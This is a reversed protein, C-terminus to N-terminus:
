FNFKVGASYSRPTAVSGFDIGAGGFGRSNSANLGNVNPDIGSYNTILFLDTVTVYISVSKFVKQRKIFSAPFQYGLTADRMRVWNVNEVYDADSISTTTSYYNSRFYPTIAITNVTPHPSNELGDQLVGKIVRPQERDLTRASVGLIRMMMENANYVDGGKRVDLNFSLFWDKFTISNIVGFKYDPTRDGIPVFNQSLTPLGTTPSILLDGKNNFQYTYGSLNGLSNGVGVQSRVNGYLWTDSDYYFPLDAPMKEIITRAKDFNVTINWNFNKTQIPTGTIQIEWGKAALQGGNIYKLIGGTAYSLRNSIIQNKVKNNFYAVDVGLRNNFFKFEGGAEFNNSFEPTLDFNNLTVGLGFGGGTTTQSQFAYDIIYPRNPGRGTSAYSTRLKAYSLWKLKNIFDIESLIFSGSISGYQFFPQKDKFRSTLTSVGERTGTVTLYAMNNYGFTYGAYFRVKRINYQSLKTYHSLPDTNNISIFDPEYFREGRQATLSSNNSEMYTGAYVENSFKNAITKRYNVRATGNFGRYVQQFGSLFGGLSFAARSQPHYYLFGTTTYQDLGLIGTFTLGKALTAAININGTLRDTKDQAINKNAEWFPNDAEDSALQKRLLRRTGDPNIYDSANIDPPTSMLNTYFSGQGKVPKHNDSYIYAWTSTLSVKKGLKANAALRINVRELSSNPVVGSANLYGASFRYNLDATGSEVSVNHQQTFSRQFFNKMNDYFVTEEPYKPGFFSFGLAYAPNASNYAAPDYIGNLGRSYETQIQPFRYVESVTFSNTYNVRATGSRGKKTTIVIAGAAGDSGYLATAEPGKLITVNEIDDPNLDAIRNTYDQNRGALSLTNAAGSVNSAGILNEQDIASNDLPVGDVVFLPQNSGGISVGGRLMVQASAGPVGSTSTVTIGPVRGALANLFNDRRTQAIDEGKVVVTQYGLERKNRVQGYGTVVVNGLEKNSAVLRTNVLKDDGVIMEQNAYGVYTFVLKNGKEAAISFYGAQNTQTRKSNATNTITVGILPSGDDDSLVTGSVTKEQGYGTFFLCLMVLSLFLPATKRM